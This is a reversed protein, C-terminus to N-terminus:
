QIEKKDRNNGINEDKHEEWWTGEQVRPKELRMTEALM